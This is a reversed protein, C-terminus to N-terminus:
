KAADGKKEVCIMSHVCLNIGAKEDYPKYDNCIAAMPPNNAFPCSCEQKIEFNM